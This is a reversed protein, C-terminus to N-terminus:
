DTGISKDHDPRGECSRQDIDNLPCCPVDVPCTFLLSLKPIITVLYDCCRVFSINCYMNRITLTAQVITYESFENHLSIYVPAIDLM